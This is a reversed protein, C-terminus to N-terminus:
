PLQSTLNRNNLTTNRDNFDTAGDMTVDSARYGLLNRSNLTINRDNFDITGDANADGSFLGFVGGGLARLPSAGFAQTQATSFDYASAENPVSLATASMIALHNRHKVVIFNSIAYGSALTETFWASASGDTERLTGDDNLFAARRSVAPGGSSARLEILVWDVINASPISAVNETGAYNFPAVNYPQTLPLNGGSNLTTSMAPGVYAGQLFFKAAVPFKFTNTTATIDVLSKHGQGDDLTVAPSASTYGYLTSNILTTGSPPNSGSNDTGVNILGAANAAGKTFNATITTGSVNGYVIVGGGGPTGGNNTLTITGTAGITVGSIIDAGTKAFIYIGTTTNNSSNVTGNITITSTTTSNQQDINIGGGTAANNLTGNGTFTGGTVTLNTSGDGLSLGHVHNNSATLNTVTSPGTIGKLNVGSGNTGTGNGSAVVNTMSYTSGGLTNFGEDLNGSYFGGTVTVGTCGNLQTGSGTNNRSVVGSLTLGSTGTSVIGNGPAGYVVLSQITAGNAAVSIGNGASPHIKSNTDPSALTIAKNLNVSEAYTGPGVNVTQGAISANVGRQISGSSTTVYLNAADVTVLGLAANDIKHVILDETQFGSAGITNGTTATVANASAHGQGDDLTVAPHTADYGSFTSNSVVTGTPSNSSGNVLVMVGAGPAAGKTFDVKNITADAVKGVVVVGAGGPNTAPSGNNSVTFSSSGDGINVTNVADSNTAAYVYVGASTNNSADIVGGLSVVSTIKTGQAVVNIGGGTAANGSQGNGNFTGGIVTVGNAGDGISLGHVHNSSATTNQLYAGAVGKINVGSGNTGSGNGSATVGSLTDGSGGLTNYGEDTNNSFTSNLVKVTAVNTLQAGSGTNVDSHVSTIKLNSVGSASIGNGPAGTVTLNNITVNSATVTIGNGSLPSITTGPNTGQLTLPKNIVVSENFTGAAITVTAGSTAANIQSQITQGYLAGISMLLIVGIVISLRLYKM